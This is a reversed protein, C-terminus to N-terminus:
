SKQWLIYIYIAQLATKTGTNAAAADTSLSSEKELSFAVYADQVNHLMILCFFSFGKVDEQMKHDWSRVTDERKEM